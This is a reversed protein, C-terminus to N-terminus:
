HIVLVLGTEKGRLELNMSKSGTGSYIMLDESKWGFYEVNLTCKEKSPLKSLRYRGYEDVTSKDCPNKCDPCTVFIEANVAPVGDPSIWGRGYIDAASAPLVYFLLFLFFIIKRIVM